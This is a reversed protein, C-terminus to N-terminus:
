KIYNTMYYSQEGCQKVVEAVDDDSQRVMRSSLEMCERFVKLRAEGRAASIPPEAEGCGLLILTTFALLAAKM